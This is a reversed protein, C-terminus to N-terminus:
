TRLLVWQRLCLELPSLRVDVDAGNTVDVVTLGRQGRSDGLHQMVLVGRQVSRVRKILDVVGWLLLLATDRDVDGVHLVLGFLAVVCM